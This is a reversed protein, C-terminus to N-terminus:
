NENPAVVTFQVAVSAAPLWASQLKVTVTESVCGGVIVQGALMVAFLATPWHEAATVYGFGVTVSL